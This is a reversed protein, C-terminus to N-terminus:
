IDEEFAIKKQKNKELYDQAARGKEKKRRRLEAFEM